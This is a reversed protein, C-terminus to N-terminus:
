IGLLDLTAHDLAAAAYRATMATINAESHYHTSNMMWVYMGWFLWCRYAFFAEDWAPASVGNAWLQSLYHELLPREWLRRDVVDLCGGLFYAVDHVWPLRWCSWDLLGARGDATLYLNALHMDGHTITEPLQSGQAILAKIAGLLRRRDKLARPIAAGRPESVTAAFLVEDSLIDQQRPLALADLKAAFGFMQEDQLESAQWWRAHVQALSTLFDAAIEISAIPEQAKLCTVGRLDLDEMVLASGETEDDQVFFCQIHEVGPLHPVIRAYSRAEKLQWDLMTERAYPEFCGKVILTPPFDPDNTRVALRLKTCAGGLSRLAEAHEVVFGPRSHGLARTLWEADVEEPTTPLKISASCTM